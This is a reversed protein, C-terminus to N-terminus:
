YSLGTFDPLKPRKLEAQITKVPTRLPYISNPCLLPAVTPQNLTPFESVLVSDNCHRCALVSSFDGHLCTFVLTDHSIFVIITLVPLDIAAICHTPHFSSPRRQILSKQFEPLHLACFTVKNTLCAGFTDKLRGLYMAFLYYQTHILCFMGQVRSREDGNNGELWRDTM